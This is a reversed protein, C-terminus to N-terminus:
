GYTRKIKPPTEKKKAREYTYNKKQRNWSKGTFKENKKEMGERKKITLGQFTFLPTTYLFQFM